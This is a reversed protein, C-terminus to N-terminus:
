LKAMNFAFCIRILSSTRAALTSFRTAQPWVPSRYKGLGLGGGLGAGPVGAAGVGAWGVILCKGVGHGNGGKRACRVDVVGVALEVDLAAGKLRQCLLVTRRQKDVGLCRHQRGERGVLAAKGPAVRLDAVGHFGVRRQGDQLDKGAGPAAKVDNGATLKCARQCCACPRGLDNKGADALGPAFHALRQFDANAAEVDLAFGFDIHEVFHRQSRVADRRDADADVGVDVGLGVGINRGAELAVLKANRVIAGQGGVLAGSGQGPQVDDADVEVNARLDGVFRGVALGHLAHEVQRLRNFGGTNGQFVEVKATAQADVVVALGWGLGVGQPGCQQRLKIRAAEPLALQQDLRPARQHAGCAYAYGFHQVELRALLLVEADNVGGHVVQRARREILSEM